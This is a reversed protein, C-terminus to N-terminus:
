MGSELCRAPKRRLRFGSLMAASTEEWVHDLDLDPGLKGAMKLLVLGHLTAWMANAVIHPDGNVPNEELLRHFFRLLATNLRTNARLLDPHVTADTPALDFMLRYMTPHDLAFQRYLKAAAQASTAADEAPDFRREMMAAMRDFNVACVAALLEDKSKFYHYATMTSVGLAAGLQRMAFKEVGHLILLNEATELLQARFSETKTAPVTKAM